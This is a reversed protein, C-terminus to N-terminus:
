LFLLTSFTGDKCLFADKSTEDFVSGQGLCSESLITGQDIVKESERSAIDLQAGPDM